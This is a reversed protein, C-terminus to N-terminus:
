RNPDLDIHTRRDPDLVVSRRQVVDDGRVLVLETALSSVRISIVAGAAAKVRTGSSPEADNGLDLELAEGNADRLMLDCDRTTAPVSVRVLCAPTLRVEVHATGSSEELRCWWPMYGDATVHLVPGSCEFAPIDCASPDDPDVRYTFDAPIGAVGGCSLRPHFGNVPLGDITRVHVRLAGIRRAGPLELTVFERSPYVSTAHAMRTGLQATLEYGRALVGELRFRGKADTVVGAGPTGALWAEISDEMGGLRTPLALTVSVNEVPLQHEDVVIGVISGIEDALVLSLGHEDKSMHELTTSEFCAFGYARELAWLRDGPSVSIEFHGEADADVHHTSCLVRATRAPSADRRLVRGQYTVMPARRVAGLGLLLEEGADLEEVDVRRELHYEVDAAKLQFGRLPLRPIGQLQFRGDSSTKTVRDTVISMDFTGPPLEERFENALDLGVSWEVLPSGLDDVLRGRLDCSPALVCTVDNQQRDIRTRGTGVVTWTPDCPMIRDRGRRFPASCEGKADTRWTPAEPLARGLILSRGIAPDAFNSSVFAELAVTDAQLRRREDPSLPLWFSPAVILTESADSWRPRSTDLLQFRVGNLAAGATDVIRVNANPAEVAVSATSSRTETALDLETRSRSPASSPELVEVTLPDAGSGSGSNTSPVADAIMEHASPESHAVLWITTGLLLTAAALLGAKTSLTMRARAGFPALCSMWGERGGQGADLRRRLEALGRQLRNKVLTVPLDLQAAIERPPMDAFFRLLVIERTQEDLALIHEVLKHQISALAVAELTAPLEEKRAAKHERETRRRLSRMLSTLSNRLVITLWHRTYGGHSPPSRWAAILTDQVLDDATHADDVLKRALRRLWEQHAVLSEISTPRPAGHM